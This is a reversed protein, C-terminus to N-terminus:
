YKIMLRINHNEELEKGEELNDGGNSIHRALMPLKVMPQFIGLLQPKISSENGRLM